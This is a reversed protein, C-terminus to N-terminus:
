EAYLGEFLTEPAPETCKMGFEIAAEVKKRAETEIAECVEPNAVGSEILYSRMRRVPDLARWRNAETVDRYRQDDAVFHGAYRYFRAEVVSPGQGSRAREVAERTARYVEFVNFGDVTVGPIGYGAARDSIRPVAFAREFNMSIAWMNNEVLFIVPLKWISAMNLTEHWIGQNAGGDGHFCVTVDKDGRLKARWACGVAFGIYGGVIGCAGLMGGDVFAIHMSGGKGRCYGEYKGMLEAMMLNIDGGKAICHGHGRHTSTIYDGPQLASCAGVAVAEAGEYSHALGYILNRKWLDPIASEFERILVMTRYMEIQQEPSLDPPPSLETLEPIVKRFEDLAIKEM